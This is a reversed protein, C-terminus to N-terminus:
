LVLIFDVDLLHNEQFCFFSSLTYHVDKLSIDINANLLFFLFDSTHKVVLSIHYIFVSM